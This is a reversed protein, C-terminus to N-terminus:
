GKSRTNIYKLLGVIKDPNDHLYGLAQNCCNCLLGRVTGTVHHHHDIDTAKAGCGAECLGKSKTLMEEYEWMELKYRRLRRKLRVLPDKNRASILLKRKQYRARDKQQRLPDNRKREVGRANYNREYYIKKKCEKCRSSARRLDSYHFASLPLFENHGTCKMSTRVIEDGVTQTGSVRPDIKNKMYLM